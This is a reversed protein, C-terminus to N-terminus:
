RSQPRRGRRVRAPRNGPGCDRNAAEDGGSACPRAPPAAHGAGCHPVSVRWYYTANAGPGFSATVRVSWQGADSPADLTVDSPGASGSTPAAAAGDIVRAWAASWGSPVMGGFTVHLPAGAKVTAVPKAVIWPADSGGGAWTYSGLSGAATREGALGGLTAAPPSGPLAITASPIAPSPTAPTTATPSM